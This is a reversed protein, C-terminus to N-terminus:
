KEKANKRCEALRQNAEHLYYDVAPIVPGMEIGQKALRKAREQLTRMRELHRKHVEVRAANDAALELEAGALRKSWAYCHELHMLSSQQEWDKFCIRFAEEAAKIRAKRLVVLTDDGASLGESRLLLCIGAVLWVGCVFTSKM